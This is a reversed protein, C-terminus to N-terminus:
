AGGPNFVCKDGECAPTQSAQTYDAAEYRTIKAFDVDAPFTARLRDYEEETIEVYPAQDYRADDVPYFSLGGIEEQHDVVWQIVALEEGPKVYISCSAQHETWHRKNSLWYDLQQLATLDRRTIAGEPAAVPFHVVWAKANEATQGNEPDMPTGLDRLVRFLASHADIRFNRVYYQSYRVHLGSSCDVLTSTNGSPKVCTIAASNNIGLLAAYERNVGRAYEQLRAKVQPDRAVPSDMQGTIDVGLLREDECNRAWQERLGPFYTLTSQLTGLITALRIKDRLAEEVDGARAVASSLNCM